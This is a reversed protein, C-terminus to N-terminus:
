SDSGDCDDGSNSIDSSGSLQQQEAGSGSDGNGDSGAPPL